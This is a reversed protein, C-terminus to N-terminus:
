VVLQGYDEWSSIGAVAVSGCDIAWDTGADYAESVLGYDFAEIYRGTIILDAVENSKTSWRHTTLTPVNGNSLGTDVDAATGLTTPVYKDKNAGDATTFRLVQNNTAQDTSVDTLDETTIGLALNIVDNADDNTFTITTAGTHTGGNLAAGVDDRANESAYVATGAKFTEEDQDWVLVQDNANFGATTVQDFDGLKQGKVFATTAVVTSNTALAVAGSTISGSTELNDLGFNIGSDNATTISGAEIEIKNAEASDIVLKNQTHVDGTEIKWADDGEDWYLKADTQDGRNVTIGFDDDVHSTGDNALDSNFLIAGQSATTFNLVSDTTISGSTDINGTASYITAKVVNEDAGVTTVTQFNSRASLKTDFEFSTSTENWKFKANTLTGREVEILTADAEAGNATRDSNAKILPSNEDWKLNLIGGMTTQMSVALTNSVTTAEHLTIKEDETNISLYNTDGADKILLANGDEGDDLEIELSTANKNTIKNTNITPSDLVGDLTIAGATTMVITANAVLAGGITLANAGARGQLHMQAMPNLNLAHDTTDWALVVDTGADTGREITILTADASEEGSIDTNFFLGNTNTSEIKIDSKFIADQTLTISETGNSTTFTMFSMDNVDLIELANARLDELRIHFNGEGATLGRLDDTKLQSSVSATGTITTTGLEADVVFVDVENKQVVLDADGNASNITTTSSVGLTGVVSTNGNSADVTLQDAGVTFNGTSKLGSEVEFLDTASVWKISKYAPGAGGKNVQILTQNENVGGDAINTRFRIGASSGTTLDLSGALTTKGSVDLTTSIGVDGVVDLVRAPTNTRLGVRDTSADVYLLNAQNEGSVKFDFDELDENFVVSGGKQTTSGDFTSNGVVHFQTSPADTNIGVRDFQGSTYLLHTQNDGEVRFDIDEGDQNFVVEESTHTTTFTLYPHRVADANGVNGLIEFATAENDTMLVDLDSGALSSIGSIAGVNTIGGSAPDFDLSDVTTDGFNATGSTSLNNDNFSLNNNGATTQIVGTTIEIDAIKSGTPAIIKQGFEVNEAGNTTDFTLYTTDDSEKFVLSTADTSDLVVFDANLTGIDLRAEVPANGASFDATSTSAGEKTALVFKTLQEDWYFVAPDQTTAPDGGNTRGRTFVFGVDNTANNIVAEDANRALEIVKDSVSLNTTDITTTAGNVVLDGTVELDGGITVNDPLGITIVVGDAGAGADATVVVTTENNVANFTFTQGLPLNDSNTGDTITVYSNDLKANTIAGDGVTAVGGNTITIDGSIAVNKWNDDNAGQDDNDFVLIHANKTAPAQPDTIM